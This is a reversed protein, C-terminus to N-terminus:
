RHSDETEYSFSLWVADATVATFLKLGVALDDMRGIFASLGSGLAMM